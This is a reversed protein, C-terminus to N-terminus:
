AYEIGGVQAVAPVNFKAITSNEESPDFGSFSDFADHFSDVDDQTSLAESATASAATTAATSNEEGIQAGFFTDLVIRARSTKTGWLKKRRVQKKARPINNEKLVNMTLGVPQEAWATFDGGLDLTRLKRRTRNLTTGLERKVGHM